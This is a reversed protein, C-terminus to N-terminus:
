KMDNFGIFSQATIGELLHQTEETALSNTEAECDSKILALTEPTMTFGLSQEGRLTAEAMMRFQEKVSEQICEDADGFILVGVSNIANKVPGTEQTDQAALPTAALATSLGAAMFIQKM